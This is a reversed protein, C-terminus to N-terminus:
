FRSLLADVRPKGWRVVKLPTTENGKVDVGDGGRLSVGASGDRRRVDVVGKVVFVSTSEPMVDVAWVTGRVSAVAHPTRIQFGGRKATPHFEILAAGDRLSVGGTDLLGVSAGPEVKAAAGSRCRLIQLGKQNPDSLKCTGGQAMADNSDFPVQLPGEGAM